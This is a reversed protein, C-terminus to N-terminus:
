PAIRGREAKFARRLRANPRPPHVLAEFFTQRDRQSLELTEHRALAERAADALATLCFDTLSRRELKAAREVMQKTRDDVRFGLRAERARREKAVAANRSM